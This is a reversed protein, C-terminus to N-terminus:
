YRCRLFETRVKSIQENYVSSKFTSFFSEASQSRGLSWGTNEDHKSGQDLYAIAVTQIPTSGVGILFMGTVFLWKVWAPEEREAESSTAGGNTICGSPDQFAGSKKVHTVNLVSFPQERFFEASSYCFAGIAILGAGMAMILPKNGKRGYFSVPIVLLVIAVHFSGEILGTFKSNFNFLKELTSYCSNVFGTTLSSQVGVLYCIAFLQWGARSYLPISSNEAGLNEISKKRKDKKHANEEFSGECLDKADSHTTMAGDHAGQTLFYEESQNGKSSRKFKDWFTSMISRNNSTAQGQTDFQHENTSSSETTRQHSAEKITM